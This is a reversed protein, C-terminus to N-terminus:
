IECAGRYLAYKNASVWFCASKRQIGGHVSFSDGWFSSIPTTDFFVISERFGYKKPTLRYIVRVETNIGFKITPQRDRECYLQSKFFFPVKEL